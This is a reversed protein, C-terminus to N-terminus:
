RRRELAQPPLVGIKCLFPYPPEGGAFIFVRENERTCLEEGCRLVVAEPRIEVVNSRLLVEIRGRKQALALRRENPGKLRFFRDRRYSLTVENRRSLEVAAEIASDGGGVVLIRENEYSRADQLEYAVKPLDEGPVGLKRPSGRRGIALVVTRAFIPEKDTVIRFWGARPPEGERVVDRVRTRERVHLGNDHAAEQWVELLAEKRIERARFRGYGPLEVPETLVLKRRPYHAVTGGLRDQDIGLYALGLTKATLAAALGAPGLGIIAVDLLDPPPDAPPRTTALRDAIAEIVAKGQAIANKILPVGTLEGALFIGPVASEGEESRKPMRPDNALDGLTVVLADTPCARECAAHGVCLLPQVLVAQGGVLGLPSDAGHTEPCADICSGCGICRGTSWRRRSVSARRANM